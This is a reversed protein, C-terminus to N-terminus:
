HYYFDKVAYQVCHVSVPLAKNFGYQVAYEAYLDKQQSYIIHSQLYTCACIVSVLILEENHKQKLQDLLIRRKSDNSAAQELRQQM